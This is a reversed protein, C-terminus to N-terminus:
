FAHSKGAKKQDFAASAREVVGDFHTAKAPKNRTSLPWPGTSLATLIRPDENVM